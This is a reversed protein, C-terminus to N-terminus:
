KEKLKGGRFELIKDRIRNIEASYDEKVKTIEQQIENFQKKLHESFSEKIEWIILENLQKMKFWLPLLYQKLNKIDDQDIFDIPLLINGVICDTRADYISGLSVSQQVPLRGICESDMSRGLPNDDESKPESHNPKAM